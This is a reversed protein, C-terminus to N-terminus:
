MTLDSRIFVFNSYHYINSEPRKPDINVFGSGHPLLQYVKYGGLLLSLSYLSHHQFLQHVNYELQIFKPKVTAILRQAGLLVNYEYGETDIKILDIGGDPVLQKDALFYEDLTVVPVTISRVNSAGVYGINKVEISFSALESDEDGYYLELEGNKDGVGKNIASLRGPYKSSLAVLRQYAGPLPEFAIIRAKTSELLAASYHGKNAGIDVCLQPSYKSFRKLFNAEGASIVNDPNDYGRARLTLQLGIKNIFQLQPRGFVFVYITTIVRYLLKM